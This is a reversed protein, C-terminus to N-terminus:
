TAFTLNEKVILVRDKHYRFCPVSIADFYGGIARYLPTYIAKVYL